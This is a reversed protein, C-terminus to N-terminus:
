SELYNNEMKLLQCLMQHSYSSQLMFFMKKNKVNYASLVYDYSKNVKVLLRVEGNCTKIM